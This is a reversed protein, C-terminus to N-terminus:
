NTFFAFKAVGKQRRTSILVVLHRNGITGVVEFSDLPAHLSVKVEPSERMLKGLQRIGGYPRALKYLDAPLDSSALQGMKTKDEQEMASALAYYTEKAQHVKREQQRLADFCLGTAVVVAIFIATLLYKNKLFKM